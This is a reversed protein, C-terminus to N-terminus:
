SASRGIIASVQRQTKGAMIRAGRLERGTELMVWDTFRNAENMPNWRSAVSPTHRIPTYPGSVLAKGVSATAQPARM